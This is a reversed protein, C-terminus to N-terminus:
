ITYITCLLCVCNQTVLRKKFDCQFGNIERSEGIKNRLTIRKISIRYQHKLLHILSNM